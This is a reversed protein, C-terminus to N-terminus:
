FDLAIKESTENNVIFYRTYDRKPKPCHYESSITYKKACEPCEILVHEKTQFWDNEELVFKVTGKKCPCPVTKENVVEYSM